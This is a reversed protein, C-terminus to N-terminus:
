LDNMNIDKMSEDTDFDDNQIANYIKTCQHM